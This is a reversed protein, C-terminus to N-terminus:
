LGATAGVTPQLAYLESDTCVFKLPFTHIEPSRVSYVHLVSCQKGAENLIDVRNYSVAIATHLKM